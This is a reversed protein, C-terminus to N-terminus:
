DSPRRSAKDDVHVASPLRVGREGSRGALFEVTSAPSCKMAEIIADEPVLAIYKAYYPAHETSDPRAM